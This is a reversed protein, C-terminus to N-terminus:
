CKETTLERNSVNLNDGNSINVYILLERWVFVNRTHFSHTLPLSTHGDTCTSSAEGLPLTTMVSILVEAPM